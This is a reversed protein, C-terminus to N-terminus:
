GGLMAKVFKTLANRAPCWGRKCHRCRAEGTRSVGLHEKALAQIAEAWGELYDALRLTRLNERYGVVMEAARRLAEDLHPDTM